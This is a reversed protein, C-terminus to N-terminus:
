MQAEVPEEEEEEEGGMGAMGGQKFWGIVMEKIKEQQEPRLIQRMDHLAKVMTLWKEAKLGGIEKIKAEATPMDIEERMVANKVDVMDMEIQSRLGILQKKAEAHRNRLKECQEDSIGLEDAHMLVMWPMRYFMARIGGGMWQGHRPLGHGPHHGTVAEGPHRETAAQGHM